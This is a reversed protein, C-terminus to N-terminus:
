GNIVTVKNDSEDGLPQVVEMVYPQRQISFGQLVLRVESTRKSRIEGLQKALKNFAAVTETNTPTTM